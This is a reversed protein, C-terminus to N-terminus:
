WVPLLQQYTRVLSNNFKVPTWIPSLHNNLEKKTLKLPGLSLSCTISLAILTSYANSSLTRDMVDCINFYMYRLCVIQPSYIVTHKPM